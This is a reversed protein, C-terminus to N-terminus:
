GFYRQLRAAAEELVERKKAFCFRAYHRPAGAISPHYFASVPVAAVKAREAIERCFALDDHRGVSRVDVSVFYAGEVPLVDFGARALGASLLDRKEQLGGALGEYYNDGLSLAGAVAAQLHSPCTYAIFQHAKKLAEILRADGAAYGLRWGTVSFTKGFSGLRITRERMGPLRMLPAHPRGDFTIHEYVEDSIVILDRARAVSAIADLEDVTLVRGSPNHPTNVVIARTYPTVAAALAARDIRWRPPKMEVYVPRAGAAEIQPAYSEYFPAFVIVEDWPQCFAMFAAALGETAGALVLTESRWDLDLGYFRKHGAAIAQRLEPLGEIPAYQNPGAVIADAAARLMEPPGDEDPFGQGLNIADHERALATMTPFISVPRDAFVPNLLRTM